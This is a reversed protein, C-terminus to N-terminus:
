CCPSLCWSSSTSLRDRSSPGYSLCNAARAFAQGLLVAGETSVLYPHQKPGVQRHPSFRVLRLWEPPTGEWCTGFTVDHGQESLHHALTGFQAPFNNHLFLVRM